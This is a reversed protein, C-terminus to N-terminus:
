IPIEPFDNSQEFEIGEREQVHLGLLHNNILCFNRRGERQNHLYNLGREGKM